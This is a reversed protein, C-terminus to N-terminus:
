HIEMINLQNVRIFAVLRSFNMFLLLHVYMFFMRRSFLLLQIHINVFSYCNMYVRTNVEVICHTANSSIMIILIPKSRNIWLRTIGPLSKPFQKYRNNMMQRSMTFINKKTMMMTAAPTRILQQLQKRLSYFYDRVMQIDNSSNPSWCFYEAFSHFMMSSVWNYCVNLSHRQFSSSNHFHNCSFCVRIRSEMSDKLMSKFILNLFTSLM